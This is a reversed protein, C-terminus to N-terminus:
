LGANGASRVHQLGGMQSGYNSEIGWIAVLITKSVGYRSELNALMSANAALMEEGQSVRDDSVAGDLYSWVPKVFEPQALNAQEVRANRTIGTMSADYIDPRIGANIATARFDRVFVAFKLDAPDNAVPGPTPTAAAIQRNGHHAAVPEPMACAAAGLALALTMGRIMLRTGKRSNM